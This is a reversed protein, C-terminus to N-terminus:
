VVPGTLPSWEGTPVLRALVPCRGGTWKRTSSATSPLLGWSTTHFVKRSVNGRQGFLCLSDWTRPRSSSLLSLCIFLYRFTPLYTSLDSVIEGLGKSIFTGSIGRKVVIIKVDKDSLLFPHHSVSWRDFPLRLYSEPFRTTVSPSPSSSSPTESPLPTFRLRISTLHNDRHLSTM